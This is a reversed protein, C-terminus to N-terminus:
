YKDANANSFILFLNQMCGWDEYIYVIFSNLGLDIVVYM